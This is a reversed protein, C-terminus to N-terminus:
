AMNDVLIIKSVLEATNKADLKRMIRARHVEVTRYSIDLRMAIEKCSLGNAVYASIERERRTLNATRLCNEAIREFSWIMLDFPDEPTLTIGRARAWFVERSRHQMFREDEYYCNSELHKLCRQGIQHFDSLSPYLQLISKGVLERRTYGFLNAFSHNCESIKRASCIVQPAPSEKFALLTLHFDSMNDGRIAHRDQWQAASDAASKQRGADQGHPSRPALTYSAEPVQFPSKGATEPPKKWGTENRKM